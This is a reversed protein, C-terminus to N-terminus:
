SAQKAPAGIQGRTRRHVDPLRWWPISPELHHEHHYGFHFCTLLSVLWSYNNSRARHRDAFPASAPKHPLYTGFTFLQLSSLIAPLAWFLMLNAPHAGFVLLYVWVIVALVAFERWSFYELFFKAYWHWFGYDPPHDDFDPDDGTGSYRHHLHHKRNLADFNFGAYLALALRGIWRNVSPRFPVLSGHMCDHAIIFLGVSLWCQWLVLAPASLLSHWGWQYLFVAALHTALWAAIIAGALLLGILAQKSLM